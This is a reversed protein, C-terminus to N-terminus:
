DKKFNIKELAKPNCYAMGIKDNKSQEQAIDSDIGYKLALHLAHGHAVGEPLGVEAEQSITQITDEEDVVVTVRWAISNTKIMGTTVRICSPRLSHIYALAVEDLKRGKLFELVEINSWGIRDPRHYTYKHPEYLEKTNM